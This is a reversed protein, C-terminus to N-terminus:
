PPTAYPDTPPFDEFVQWIGGWPKNPWISWDDGFVFRTDFRAYRASGDLFAAAHYDQQKHWGVLSKRASPQDPLMTTAGPARAGELAYNMRNECFIIFESSYRAARDRVLESGVGVRRSQLIGAGIINSFLGPQETWTDYPPVGEYYYPWYWNSAYSTGWFYWTSFPTDPEVEENDSRVMPVWPSDDSPCRFFGPFDEHPPDRKEVDSMQHRDWSVDPSLHPNLGRHKPRVEYIDAGWGGQGTMNYWDRMSAWPFTGGWIFETIINYNYMENEVHYWGWPVTWPLDKNRGTLLYQNAAQGIGKLNSVCITKRAQEKARSLAPLLISILLAIIAVVVLLEILTFARRSRQSRTM